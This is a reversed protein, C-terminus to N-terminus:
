VHKGVWAYTGVITYNVGAQYGIVWDNGCRVWAHALWAKQENKIMGLYLTNALQRRALMHQAALAQDLCKSKWPLFKAVFKISRSINKLEQPSVPYTKLTECQFHGCRKKWYHFPLFVIIAKALSLEWFAELCPKLFRRNRAIWQALSM